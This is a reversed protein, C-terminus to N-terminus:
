QHLLEEFDVRPLVELKGGATANYLERGHERYVDLAKQYSAELPEMRPKHWRYGKGFYDPHFHNPDKGLSTLVRDDAHQQNPDIQYNHDVGILYVPNCGMYFAIQMMSYTVTFDVELHQAIDTSFHTPWM